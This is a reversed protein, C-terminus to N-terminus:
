FFNPTWQGHLNLQLVIMCMDMMKFLTKLCIMTGLLLEVLFLGLIYYNTGQLILLMYQFISVVVPHNCVDKLYGVWKSSQM